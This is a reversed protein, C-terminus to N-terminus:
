IGAFGVKLVQMRPPPTAAIGAVSAVGADVARACM